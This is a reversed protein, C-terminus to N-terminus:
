RVHAKRQETHFCRKDAKGDQPPPRSLTSFAGKPIKELSVTKEQTSQARGSFVALFGQEALSGFSVRMDDAESYLDSSKRGGVGGTM